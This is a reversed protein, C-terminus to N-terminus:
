RFAVDCAGVEGTPARPGDDCKFEAPEETMARNIDGNYKAILELASFLKGRPMRLLDGISIDNLGTADLPVNVDLIGAVRVEPQKLLRRIFRRLTLAYDSPTLALGGKLHNSLDPRNAIWKESLQVQQCTEM